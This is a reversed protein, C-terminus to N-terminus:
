APMPDTLVVGAAVSPGVNQIMLTFTLPDTPAVPNRSATQTLTLDPSTITSGETTEFAVGSPPFAYSIQILPEDAPRYVNSYLTYDFVQNANARRLMPASLQAGVIPQEGWY